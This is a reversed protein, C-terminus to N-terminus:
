GWACWTSFNAEQIMVYLISFSAGYMNAYWTSFNAEYVDLVLPLRM